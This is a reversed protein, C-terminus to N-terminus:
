GRFARQHFPKSLESLVISAYQFAEQEELTPGEWPQLALLM